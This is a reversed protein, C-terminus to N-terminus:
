VGALYLLICGRNWVHIISLLFATVKLLIIYAVKIYTHISVIGVVGAKMFDLSRPFVIRILLLYWVDFHLHYKKM